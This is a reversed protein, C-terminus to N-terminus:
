KLITKGRGKNGYRSFHQELFPDFKCILELCGLFNGNHKSGIMEDHGRFSLGRSSLFKVVEVVRWLVKRWYTMEDEVTNNFSNELTLENKLRLKYKVDNNMHDKSQEHMSISRSTENWNNFGNLAFPSPNDCLNGFLRCVFCFISDTTPSYILWNRVIKTGNPLTRHLHFETFNRQGPHKLILDLNRCM